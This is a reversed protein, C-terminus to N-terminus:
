YSQVEIIYFINKSESTQKIPVSQVTIIINVLLIGSAMWFVHRAM